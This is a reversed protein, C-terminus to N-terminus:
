RYRPGRGGDHGTGTYCLRLALGRAHHASYHPLPARLLWQGPGGHQQFAGLQAGAGIFVAAEAQRAHGGAAVVHAGRQNAVLGIRAVVHVNRGAVVVQQVQLQALALLQLFHHHRGVAGDPHSGGFRRQAHLPEVHLFDFAVGAAVEVYGANDLRQGSHPARGTGAAEAVVDDDPAPGGVFVPVVEVADLHGDDVM